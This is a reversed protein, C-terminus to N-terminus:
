VFCWHHFHVRINSGRRQLRSRLAEALYDSTAIYRCWLIPNLGEKLMSEVAAIAAQLKSDKDGCLKQAAQVFARLKRRESDGYAQQGQEVV